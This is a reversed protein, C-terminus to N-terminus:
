FLNHHITANLKDSYKHLEEIWLIQIFHFSLGTVNLMLSISFVIETIGNGVTVIQGCIFNRLSFNFRVFAYRLQDCLRFFTDSM